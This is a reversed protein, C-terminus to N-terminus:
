RQFEFTLALSGFGSDPHEPVAAVEQASRLFSWGGSAVSLDVSVPVLFRSLRKVRRLGFSLRFVFVGRKNLLIIALKGNLLFRVKM